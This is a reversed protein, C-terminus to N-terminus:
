NFHIMNESGGCPPIKDLSDKLSEFHFDSFGNLALWRAFCLARICCHCYYKANKLKRAMCNKSGCAQELFNIFLVHLPSYGVQGSAIEDETKIPASKSIPTSFLEEETM